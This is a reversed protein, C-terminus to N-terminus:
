KMLAVAAVAAAAVGGAILLNKNSSPAATQPAVGPSQPMSPAVSQQQMAAIAAKESEIQSEVQKRQLERQQAMTKMQEAMMLEEMRQSEAARADASKQAKKQESLQYVSLGLTAVTGLIAAVNTWTSVAAGPNGLGRPSIGRATERQIIDLAMNKVGAPLANLKAMAQKHLADLQQPPLKNIQSAIESTSKRVRALLGDYLVDQNAM